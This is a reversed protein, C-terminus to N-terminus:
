VVVSGPKLYRGITHSAALLARLDPRNHDDIPTPVAVVFFTAQALDDPDHTLTLSSALLTDASVAGTRDLGHKLDHVKRSDIGYGCRCPFRRAFALAVPLGVYGMGVVAIRESM